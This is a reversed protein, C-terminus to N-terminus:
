PCTVQSSSICVKIDHLFCDDHLNSSLPILFLRCDTSLAGVSGRWPFLACLDWPPLLWGTPRKLTPHPVIPVRSIICRPNREHGVYNLRKQLFLNKSSFETEALTPGDPFIWAAQRLQFATFSYLACHAAPLYQLAAYNGLSPPFWSSALASKSSNTKSCSNCVSQLTHSKTYKWEIYAQLNLGQPTEQTSCM